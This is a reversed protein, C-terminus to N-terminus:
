FIMVILASLLCVPIGIFMGICSQKIHYAYNHYESDMDETGPIIMKKSHCFWIGDLIFADYWDVIIWLLYATLFGGLFTREGNFIRLFAALIVALIISSIIKKIIVTRSGPVQEDTILGLEKVREIIKPPYNYIQGLPNKLALTVIILTFLLCLVVAEILIIM